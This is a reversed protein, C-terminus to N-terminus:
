RPTLIEFTLAAERDRIDGTVVRAGAAELLAANRRKIAPDYFDNFNDLVCVDDGRALLREGVHSGIFGAGGTLLVRQMSGHATM